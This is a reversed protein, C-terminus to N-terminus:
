DDINMETNKTQKRNKRGTKKSYKREFLKESIGAEKYIKSLREQKRAEKKTVTQEIEKKIGKRRRGVVQAKKRDRIEKRRKVFKRNQNGFKNVM